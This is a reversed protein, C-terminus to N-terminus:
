VRRPSANRQYKDYRDRGGLTFAREPHRTPVHVPEQRRSAPAKGKRSKERYTGGRSKSRSRGRNRSTNPAPLGSKNHPGFWAFVSVPRYWMSRRGYMFHLRLALFLLFILFGWLLAANFLAFAELVRYQAHYTETSFNPVDILVTQSEASFCEVDAEESESSALFAGLALWLTGALGLCGTEIRTSIPNYEGRTTFALLAIMIVLTACCVFIAFPVFHTLDSSALLGQFHIAIALCIITWCIVAAYICARIINFASPM